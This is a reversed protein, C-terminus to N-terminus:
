PVARAAAAMKAVVQMEETDLQSFLPGDRLDFSRRPKGDQSHRSGGNHLCWGAAGAEVAARLDALFDKARPEWDGYGRRFPEQYHVPVVRGLERMSDSYRRTTDATEAPTGEHRPRHPTIFDVGAVELYRRLEDDGIDGGQSATVLVGPAIARVDGRLAGIEELSVYRSDGVNRENALDLYWNRYERLASVITSVARRHSSMDPLLLREGVKLGRTLTVDVAIGMEDCRAVLRRLRELYPERPAGSADVCSVDNDYAAWDAWVRIWNIGREVMAQLDREVVSDSAGLAGYYSVGLLFTQRGDVTFRAGEIGLETACGCTSCLVSLAAFAPLRMPM